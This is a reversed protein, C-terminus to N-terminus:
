AGLVRGPRWGLVCTAITGEDQVLRIAQHSALALHQQERTTSIPDALSDRFGALTENQEAPFKLILVELTSNPVITTARPTQRVHQQGTIRV